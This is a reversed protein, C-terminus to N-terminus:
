LVRYLHAPCQLVSFPEFCRILQQLKELISYLLKRFYFALKRIEAVSFYPMCKQGQVEQRNLTKEPYSLLTFLTFERLLNSM